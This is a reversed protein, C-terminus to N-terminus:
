DNVAASWAGVGSGFGLGQTAAYPLVVAEPSVSEQCAAIMVLSGLALSAGFRRNIVLSVPSKM